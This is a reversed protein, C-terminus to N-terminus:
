SSDNSVDATSRHVGAFALHFNKAQLSRHDFPVEVPSEYSDVRVLVDVAESFAEKCRAQGGDKTGQPGDDLTFIRPVDM